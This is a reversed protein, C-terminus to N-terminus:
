IDRYPSTEVIDPSSVLNRCPRVSLWFSLAEAMMFNIVCYIHNHYVYNKYVTSWSNLYM